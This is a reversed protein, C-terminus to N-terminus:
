AISSEPRSWEARFNFEAGFEGRWAAPAPSSAATDHTAQGGTGFPVVLASLGGM